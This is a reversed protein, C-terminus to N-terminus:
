EIALSSANWYTLKSQDKESTCGLGGRKSSKFSTDLALNKLTRGKQSWVKLGPFLM